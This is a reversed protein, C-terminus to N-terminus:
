ATRAGRLNIQLEFECPQMLHLELELHLEFEVVTELIEVIEFNM